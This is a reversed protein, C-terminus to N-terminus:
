PATQGHVGWHVALTHVPQTLLDVIPISALVSEEFAPERETVADVLADYRDLYGALVGCAVDAALRDRFAAHVLTLGTVEGDKVEPVILVTRQDAGGRAVLVERLTAARHKSGRLRPDRDTRTPIDRAIGGRDLVRVTQGDVQYRTWGTVEVVAPDLAVLTRLARYGLRDRPAGTDLVARVLRNGYLAEESRSIGVTVTKAQHKIADIPRTLEGIARTLGDTLDALFATPTAV